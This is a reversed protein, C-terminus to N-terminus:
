TPVAQRLASETVSGPACHFVIMVQDEDEVSRLVTDCLDLRGLTPHNLTTGGLPRERTPHSSWLEAFRPSQRTLDAVVATIEPDTPRRSAAARLRGVIDETVLPWDAYLTRSEDDLLLVRAWNLGVASWPEDFARHPAFVRHALRNWSLVRMSRGLVGVPVGDLHSLVAALSPLLTEPRGPQPHDPSVQALRYMQAHEEDTLRLAAAVSRLVGSSVTGATGQEIRTYYSASVGALFAVEERRLGPVRRRGYTPVDVEDPQRLNRRSRLFEGLAIDGAASGMAGSHWPEGVRQSTGSPM